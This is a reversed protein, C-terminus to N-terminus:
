NLNIKYIGPAIREYHNQLTQRIKAKYHKNKSIRGPALRLVTEYIDSLSAEKKLEEMAEGVIVRWTKNEDLSIGTIFIREKVPLHFGKLGSVEIAEANEEGYSVLVSPAGSNHKARIGNRDYFTIRGDIFFLSEAHPFIYEQFANTDTRAFILAIGDNHLAMKHLFQGMYKGYPPNCWVRGFWPMLLGNDDITYHNLATDWPRNLPSCPDLDFVGLSTILEPPTLWTEENDTNINLKKSKKM